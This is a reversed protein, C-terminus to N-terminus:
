TPTKKAFGGISLGTLGGSKVQNWLGDDLFNLGMLWTGAKIQSGGVVMDVPAIYSEVLKVKDNVLGKHMLGVNRFNKMYEWSARRVEDASYIDGQADTTEPELVVGLVYRQESGDGMAKGAAEDFVLRLAREIGDVDLIKEKHGEVQALRAVAEDKSAYPGGLHKSGDESYVHWGDSEQKIMKAVADVVFGALSKMCEMPHVNLLAKMMGISTTAMGGYFRKPVHALYMGKASDADVFGLMVKYEDFSGDSKQQIIWHAESASPDAGLFVDLGEGDGGQTTPVYGYDVHYVRKWANGKEDMGNMVYGKPRDIHVPIGQYDVVKAVVSPHKPKPPPAQQPAKLGGAALDAAALDDKALEDFKQVARLASVKMLSRSLGMSKKAPTTM